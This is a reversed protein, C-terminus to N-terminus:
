KMTNINISDYYGIDGYICIDQNIDNIDIHINDISFYNDKIKIYFPNENYSFCDIDYSFYYSKNNTIVQIFAEKKKNNISIGPIFSINDVGNSNKFYWGEFYNRNSDLYCEGQFLLPNRILYLKKM